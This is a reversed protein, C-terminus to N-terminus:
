KINNKFICVPQMTGGALIVAHAEDVIEKFHAAPNLLMFKLTSKRADELCQYFAKSSHITQTHIYKYKHIHKTHM